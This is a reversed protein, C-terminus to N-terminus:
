RTSSCNPEEKLLAEIKKDLPVTDDWLIQLIRLEDKDTIKKLLDEAYLKGNM